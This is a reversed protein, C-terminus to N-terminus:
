MVMNAQVNGNSKVNNNDYNTDYELKILKNNSNYRESPKISKLVSNM